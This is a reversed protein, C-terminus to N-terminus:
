VQADRWPIVRRDEGGRRLSAVAAKMLNRVGVVTAVQRLGGDGSSGVEPVNRGRRKVRGRRNAGGAPKRGKEPRHREQPERKLAKSRAPLRVGEPATVRRGNRSVATRWESTKRFIATRRLKLTNRRGDLGYGAPSGGRQRASARKLNRRELTRAPVGHGAGGGAKGSASWSPRAERFVLSQRHWRAKRLTGTLLDTEPGGVRKLNGVQDRGLHGRSAGLRKRGPQARGARPPNGGSPV